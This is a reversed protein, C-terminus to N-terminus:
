KDTPLPKYELSEVFAVRQECIMQDYMMKEQAIRIESIASKHSCSVDIGLQDILQSINDLEPFRLVLSDSGVDNNVILEIRYGYGFRACDLVYKQVFTNDIELLSPIKILAVLESHNEDNISSIKSDNDSDGEKFVISSIYTASWPGFTLLSLDDIEDAIQKHLINLQATYLEEAHKVQEKLNDIIDESFLVKLDSLNSNM